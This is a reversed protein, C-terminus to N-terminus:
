PKLRNFKVKFVVDDDWRRKVATQKKTAENQLLPNGRFYKKPVFNLFRSKLNIIM